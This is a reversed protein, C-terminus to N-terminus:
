SHVISVELLAASLNDSFVSKDMSLVMEVEFLQSKGVRHGLQVSGNGNKREAKMMGESKGRESRKKM